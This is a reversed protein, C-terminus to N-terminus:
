SAKRSDTVVQAAVLMFAMVGVYYGVDALDVVGRCLADFHRMLSCSAVANVVSAPVGWNAVANIVPDFGIILMTFSVALAIVVTLAILLNWVKQAGLKETLWKEIKGPEETEEVEDMFYEQIDASQTLTTTGQALSMVFSVVGRIIPVKMWKKSARNLSTKLYIRGDPLRSAIATREPGRMMIGEILAQGGISTPCAGKLFIKSMDM